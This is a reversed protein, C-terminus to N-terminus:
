KQGGLISCWITVTFLGPGQLKILLNNMKHWFTSSGDVTKFFMKWYKQQFGRLIKASCRGTNKCFVYQHKQLVDKMVKISYKETTKCFVEWCTKQVGETPRIETTWFCGELAARLFIHELFICCGFHSKLLTAKCNLTTRYIQQM